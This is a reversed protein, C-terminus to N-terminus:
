PSTCPKKRNQNGGPAPDASEHRRAYEWVQCLAERITSMRPNIQLAAHYMEIARDTRGLAAHCHGETAMAGFHLPNLRLTVGTDQMAAEYQGDLFRATARQNFVEAFEPRRLALISLWEIAPTYEDRSLLRMALNLTRNSQEDGARFWISWLAQEAFEATKEDDDCLMGTIPAAEAMTGTLALCVLATHTIDRDGISLLGVLQFSPWSRSLFDVLRDADCRELLPRVQDVLEKGHRYSLNMLHVVEM